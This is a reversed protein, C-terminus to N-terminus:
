LRTWARWAMPMTIWMMNKLGCCGEAMRKEDEVLLLRM